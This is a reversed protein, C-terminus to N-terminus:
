LCDCAHPLECGPIGEAGGSESGIASEPEGEGREVDRPEAHNVSVIYRRSVGLVEARRQPNEQKCPCHEGEEHPQTGEFAVYRKTQEEEEESKRKQEEGDGFEFAGIESAVSDFPYGECIRGGANLKNTSNKSQLHDHHDHSTLVFGGFEEVLISSTHLTRLNTIIVIMVLLCLHGFKEVLQSQKHLKQISSSPPPPPPSQM